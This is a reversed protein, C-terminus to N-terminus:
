CTETNPQPKTRLKSFGVVRGLGLVQGDSVSDLSAGSVLTDNQAHTPASFFARSDIMSHALKQESSITAASIRAALLKRAEAVVKDLGRGDIFQMAYYNIGNEEGVDYVPVINTHHLKAATQAEHQFRKRSLESDQVGLRITKLAVRRSLSIQEAEYVVGMGGRGIERIIKYDNISPFDTLQHTQLNANAVPKVQQIIDMAELYDRLEKAVEPHYGCFSDISLGDSQRRRFFEEGLKEIKHLDAM